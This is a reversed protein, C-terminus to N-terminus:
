LLPTYHARGAVIDETSVVKGNWLRFTLTEEPELFDVGGDLRGAIEVLHFGPATHTAILMRGLVVDAVISLACHEPSLGTCLELDEPHVHWGEGEFGIIVAINGSAEVVREAVLTLDGDPSV